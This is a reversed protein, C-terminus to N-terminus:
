RFKKNLQQKLLQKARHYQSKSTSESIQMEAAIAKHSYDEIVFLTFIQRCGDPLQKIAINIDNIDVGDWWNFDEEDEVDHDENLDGWAWKKKSNNICENIVIRKLWGGFQDVNKLQNLNKFAKIFADQLVDEADAVTGMMRACISFMGKNYQRYLTEIAISDGKQAKRIIITQVQQNTNL